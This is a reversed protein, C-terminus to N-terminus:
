LPRKNPTGPKRPYAQPTQGTKEVQIIHRQSKEGPLTLSEISKLKGGLVNFAHESSELENDVSAGKMALFNGGLRVLPLCYECLVPLKAVARATVVDFSERFVDDKAFTEARDHFVSVDKLELKDILSTLFHIRKNLSDVITVKIDPFCIKLPLSPFGAGAGVDCVTLPRKFDYFFGLSLSDYFHKYYVEEVETIATLNVKENWEILERYYTDFQQLQQPSLVLGKEELLTKFRNEM